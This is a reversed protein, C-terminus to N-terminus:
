SSSVSLAVRFGNYNHRADPTNHDRAASRCLSEPSSWSGGRLVRRAGTPPGPPDAAPSHAYYTADFWDACWEWVNGHLDYLGFLNPRHSRVRMPHGDRGRGFRATRLSLRPGFHYPTHCVGARCAYEWEAETPLRYVRGAAREAPVDSLRRCFEIADLYAITDVPLRPRDRKPIRFRLAPSFHSPNLGMVAEYEQQTVQCIGLYFPRTIAVRHQPFEDADVEQAGEPSGMWFVGPPVLALEMGVANLITAVPPLVKARLLHQARKELTRRADPADDDRRLLVQLRALESREPQGNEELWDALVLWSSDDEPRERIADLFAAETLM